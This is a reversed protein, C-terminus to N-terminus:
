VGGFEMLYSKIFDDIDGDLVRIIDSTQHNTRHDKIRRDDLVYSRIQSGWEIKLKGAELENRLAMRKDLELQYLKSRLIRM